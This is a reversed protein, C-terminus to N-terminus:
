PTAGGPRQVRREPPADPPRWARRWEPSCAVCRRRSRRTRTDPDWRPARSLWSAVSGVWGSGHGSENRPLRVGQDQSGDSSLHRDFFVLFFTIRVHRRLCAALPRERRHGTVDAVRVQPEGLVWELQFPRLRQTRVARNATLAKGLCQFASLRPAHPAALDDVAPGHHGALAGPTARALILLAGDPVGGGGLPCSTAQDWTNSPGPSWRPAPEPPSDRSSSAPLRKPPSTPM